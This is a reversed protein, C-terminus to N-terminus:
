VADLTLQRRARAVEEIRAPAKLRELVDDVSSVEIAGQELYKRAWAQDTVLSHVLFLRKGHALAHRAQLKAGSTRSAEVVVTGQGIGSMVVNRRPFTHQAPHQRPWFQSVLAGSAAVREALEANAAPYTRLIGTGIVAITRGGAALASEHATTDIGRALGSVVTVDSTALGAAMKAARKLGDATADRTGVVAVSRADDRRLEGRVFLFPPLNHILRLNAPYDDDLVTVLRAGTQEADAIAEDARELQEAIAAGAGLLVARTKEADKSTETIEGAAIRELDEGARKLAERAILAWSV